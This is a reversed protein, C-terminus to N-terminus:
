AVRELRMCCRNYSDEDPKGSRRASARATFPHPPEPRPPMLGGSLLWQALDRARDGDREFRMAIVLARHAPLSGREWGRWTEDSVGVEHAARAASLGFAERLLRLRQSVTDPREWSWVATTITM